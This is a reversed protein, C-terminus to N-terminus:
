PDHRKRLAMQPFAATKMADGPLGLLQVVDMAWSTTLRGM